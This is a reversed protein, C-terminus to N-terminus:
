GLYESCRIMFCVVKCIGVGRPAIIRAHGCIRIFFEHEQKYSESAQVSWERSTKTRTNYSRFPMPLMMGSGSLTVALWDHRWKIQWSSQM